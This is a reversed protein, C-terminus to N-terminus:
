IDHMMMPNTVYGYFSHYQLPLVTEIGFDVTVNGLLDKSVNLAKPLDMGQSNSDMYAYLEYLAIDTLSMSNPEEILPIVTTYETTTDLLGSLLGPLKAYTKPGQFLKKDFDGLIETGGGFYRRLDKYELIGSDAFELSLKDEPFPIVMGDIDGKITGVINDILIKPENCVPYATLWRYHLNCPLTQVVKQLIRADPLEKYEPSNNVIDFVLENWFTYFSIFQTSFLENIGDIFLFSQCPFEESITATRPTTPIRRLVIPYFITDNNFEKDRTVVLRKFEEEKIIESFCCLYIRESHLKLTIAGNVTSPRSEWEPEIWGLKHIQRIM